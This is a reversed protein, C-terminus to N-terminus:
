LANLKVQGRMQFDCHAKSLKFLDEIIEIAPHVPSHFLRYSKSALWKTAAYPDKQAPDGCFSLTELIACLPTLLAAIIGVFVRGAHTPPMEKKLNELSAKIVILHNAKVKILSLLIDCAKGAFVLSRTYDKGDTDMDNIWDKIEKIFLQIDSYYQTRRYLQRLLLIKEKLHMAENLDAIGPM